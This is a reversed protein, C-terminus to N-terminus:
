ARKRETIYKEEQNNSGNIVLGNPLLSAPHNDWNLGTIRNLSALAQKPARDKIQILKKNNAM